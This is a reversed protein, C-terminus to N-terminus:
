YYSHGPSLRSTTIEYEGPGGNKPTMAYTTICWGQVTPLSTCARTAGGFFTNYNMLCNLWTTLAPAQLARVRHHLDM